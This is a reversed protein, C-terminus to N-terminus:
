KNLVNKPLGIQTAKYGGAEWTYIQSDGTQSDWFLHFTKGSNVYSNVRVEGKVTGLPNNPLGIEAARYAGAPANWSYLQSNGTKNDWFLHYTVEKGNEPRIYTRILVEGEVKGLPNDPLGIETAKYRGIEWTYLKSNGTKTDWFLHFTKGSNVYSNVM